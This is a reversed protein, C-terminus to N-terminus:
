RGSRVTSSRGASLKWINTSPMRWINDEFCRAIDEEANLQEM